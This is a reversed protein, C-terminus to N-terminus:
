PTDGNTLTSLVAVMGPESLPTISVSDIRIHQSQQLERLWILWKEFSVAAFTVRVASPEQATITTLAERLQHRSASAEVANKVATADMVTLQPRHRMEEVLEAARRMQETQIRLQPLKTHLKGIAEHAPQWLLFYAFLPLILLAGIGIARRENLPRADWRQLRIKQLYAKM